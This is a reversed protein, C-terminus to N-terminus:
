ISGHVTTVLVRNKEYKNSELDREFTFSKGQPLSITSRL